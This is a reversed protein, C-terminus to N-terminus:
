HTDFDVLKLIHTIFEIKQQHIYLKLLKNIFDELKWIVYFLPFFSISTGNSFPNKNKLHYYVYVHSYINFVHM